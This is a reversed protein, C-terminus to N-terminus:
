SFIDFCFDYLREPRPQQHIFLVRFAFSFWHDFADMVHTHSHTVWGKEQVFAHRESRFKLHITHKVVLVFELFLSLLYFNHKFKLTKSACDNFSFSIAAPVM